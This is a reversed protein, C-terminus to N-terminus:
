FGTCTTRSTTTCTLCNTECDKFYSIAFIKVAVYGTNNYGSLFVDVSKDSKLPITAQTVLGYYPSFGDDDGPFRNLKLYFNYVLTM